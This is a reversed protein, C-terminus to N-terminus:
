ISQPQLVVTTQKALLPGDKESAAKASKWEPDAGFTAWAAARSTEDAFEALYYMADPEDPTVWYHVVKIGVRKFIPVTVALFRARLADAKQPHAEYRKLEHIM